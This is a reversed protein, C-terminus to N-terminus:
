LLWLVRPLVTELELIDEYSTVNKLKKLLKQNLDVFEQTSLAVFSIESTRPRGSSKLGTAEIDNYVLSENETM